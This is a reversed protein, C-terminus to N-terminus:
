ESRAAAPGTMRRLLPMTAAIIGLSVALGAAVTLYFSPGPPDLTYDMQATLFLHAAVLGAGVAVVAATLLPVSSELVVM